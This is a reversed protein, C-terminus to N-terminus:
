LGVLHHRDSVENQSCLETSLDPAPIIEKAATFIRLLSRLDSKLIEFESAQLVGTMFAQPFFFGSIWFVSPHGHDLWKKVFSLREELDVVWSALPKLSPYGVAFWADPVQNNFVSTSILELSESMVVIGKMAKLVDKLSKNVTELLRNFRIVEQVVVTNLSENYLVPYKAAAEAVNLSAPIRALIDNAKMTVIDEKSTGAAGKAGGSQSMSVMNAFLTDTENIASTIDANEHLGFVNPHPNLPLNKLFAIAETQKTIAPVGYESTDSFSAGEALTEPAVYFHVM